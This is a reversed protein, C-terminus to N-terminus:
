DDPHKHTPVPFISEIGLKKVLQGISAAISASSTANPTNSQNLYRETTWSRKGCELCERQRQIQGNTRVTRAVRSGPSGCHPCILGPPNENTTANM